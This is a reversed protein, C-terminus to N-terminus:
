GSKKAAAGCVMLVVGMPLAVLVLFWLNLTFGGKMVGLLAAFAVVAALLALVACFAGSVYMLVGATRTTCFMLATTIGVGFGCTFVLWLGILNSWLAPVFHAAFLAAGAIAGFLTVLTGAITGASM